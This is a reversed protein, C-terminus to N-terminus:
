LMVTPDIAVGNYEVQFHLHAGFSDGTNGVDGIHQGREVRDGVNVLVKSSHMYKSILGNGHTIVIWNGAGGNYGGDHTAFIVTGEEAAYYPTGEPASLDLGMHFETGRFNRYGFSSSVAGTPLPNEFLKSGSLAMGGQIAKEAAEAAAKAQRAAEEEKKEREQLNVAEETIKEAEEKLAKQTAEIQLRAKEAQEMKETALAVQHEYDAKAQEETAKVQKSKLVLDAGQNTISNIADWKTLFEDFSTSGLVVDFFSTTGGTKYMSNACSALQIQLQQLRAQEQEIRVQADAAATMAQDHEAMAQNYAEYQENVNTQLLDIQLMLGDAEAFLEESTVAWSECPLLCAFVFLLALFSIACAHMSFKFQTKGM